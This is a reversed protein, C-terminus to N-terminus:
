GKRYHITKFLWLIAPDPLPLLLRLGLRCARNALSDQLGRARGKLQIGITERLTKKLYLSKAQEKRIRYRTLRQPLNALKFDLAMRTVFEYDEVPCHEEAYANGLQRFASMRFMSAPNAVPNQRLLVRRIDADEHPYTRYGVTRSEEDMIEIDSGVLGHDPNAELFAVQLELRRPLAADDNDLPAVYVGRAYGMAINRSRAVGLNRSNAFLRIRDDQGQCRRAIALSGDTSGDDVIILELNGHTQGLISGIAEDLYREANYAPMIVSVLPHPM